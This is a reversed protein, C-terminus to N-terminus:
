FQSIKYKIGRCNGIHQAITGFISTRGYVCVVSGKEMLDAFQGNIQRDLDSKRILLFYESRNRVATLSNEYFISNGNGVIKQDNVVFEELFDDWSFVYVLGGPIAITTWALGLSFVAGITFSLAYGCIFNLKRLLWNGSKDLRSGVFIPKLFRLVVLWFLLLSPFVFYFRFWLLYESRLLPMKTAMAAVWFYFAIAFIAGIAVKKQM